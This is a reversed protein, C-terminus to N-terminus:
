KLNRKTPGDLINGNIDYRSGHCPCEFVGEIENYKLSCGLHKCRPTKLTVLNKLSTKLNALLAKKNMSRQPSVFEYSNKNEILDALIFSSAMAWTFGWLNFGTAVYYNQNFRDLRGIYPIGDLTTCDQGSWSHNIDIFNLDKVKDTFKTHVDNKTDRDNGGIILFEEFSRFYLGDDDICCYTGDIQQNKISVVYSRRQTLKTFYFGSINKFPYHTAIIVNKFNIKYNNVYAVNSKLKSVKSDEYINLEKSIESILKLPHLQAQNEFSIGINIPLNIPLKDILTAKYGLTELAEKEKLIVNTDRQSYLTSNCKRFDFSYKTALEEYWKIAKLNIDLYQKAVDKGFNAILDQYLTEHQATIFATTKKTTSNGIKDKEVLVYKINRKKLEYACLIGTIGGGIILVDTEINNNLKPFSKIKINEEWLYTEKM